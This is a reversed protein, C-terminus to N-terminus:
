ESYQKVLEWQLCGAPPTMRLTLLRAQGLTFRQVHLLVGSIRVQTLRSHVVTLLRLGTLNALLGLRSM